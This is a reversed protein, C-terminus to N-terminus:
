ALQDREYENDFCRISLYAIGYEELLKFDPTRCAQSYPESLNWNLTVEAKQGEANTLTVASTKMDGMTCCLVPSYLIEGEATLAPEIRVTSDSFSEVYWKEGGIYQYYGVSDEAFFQDTYFYECRLSEEYVPNYVWSHADRLFSFAAALTKAFTDTSILKKGQLQKLIEAQATQFAEERFYYYAGYSSRFARFLIDVDSVAEEYTITAPSPASYLLEMIEDGTLLNVTEPDEVLYQEISNLAAKNEVMAKHEASVEEFLMALDLAPLVPEPM